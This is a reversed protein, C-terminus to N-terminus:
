LHGSDDDGAPPRPGAAAPSTIRAWVASKRQKAFETGVGWSPLPMYLLRSLGNLYPEYMAQLERLKADGAEACPSVGCDVLLARAQPLDEQPLRDPRCPTPRVQLIQSLDAVAHRSIAFTLQARWKTEGEGYAILLACVDLIATFAALWSQNDHQSRFFCLAPYSLHTEMLQASWTEWDRLYDGLGDQIRGRGHRRLLEGATPPSGARADLLSINVERQSFAGYLTPLYAIVIALFGFGTGAECVTIVRALTATPTVDGLGLTFFTTGSLYLDTRFTPSEGSVLVASGNAWLLMAFALILGTAWVALVLLLTLPGFYSLFSERRKSTPIKRAIASWVRWLFGLLLRSPRFTRTVYRPLIVNEFADWLIVLLLVLGFIGVLGRV